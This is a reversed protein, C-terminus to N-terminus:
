LRSLWICEFFDSRSSFFCCRSDQNLRYVWLVNVAEETQQILVSCYQLKALTEIVYLENPVKLHSKEMKIKKLTM